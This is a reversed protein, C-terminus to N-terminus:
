KSDGFTALEFPILDCQRAMLMDGGCSDCGAVTANFAALAPLGAAIAVIFDIGGTGAAYNADNEIQRVVLEEAWTSMVIMDSSMTIVTCNQEGSALTKTMEAAFESLVLGGARNFTYNYMMDTMDALLTKMDSSHPLEGCLMIAVHENSILKPRYSVVQSPYITSKVLTDSYLASEYLVSITMPFDLFLLLFSTSTQRIASM